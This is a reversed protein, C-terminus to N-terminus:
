DDGSHNRREREQEARVVRAEAAFLQIRLIALGEEMSRTWDTSDEQEIYLYQIMEFPHSESPVEGVGEVEKTEEDSGEDEYYTELYEKPGIEPGIEQVM